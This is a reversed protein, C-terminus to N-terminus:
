AVSGGLQVALTKAEHETFHGSLQIRGALVGSQITPASVIRGTAVVAMSNRPSPLAAIRETAQAIREAAAATLTCGIAWEEGFPSRFVETSAVDNGDVVVPGLRYRVAEADEMVVRPAELLEDVTCAAHGEDGCTVTTLDYGPDSPRVVALVPRMQMAVARASSPSPVSSAGGGPASTTPSPPDESHRDCAVVLVLAATAAALGRSV